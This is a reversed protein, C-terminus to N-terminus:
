KYKRKTKIETFARPRQGRSSALADMTRPLEMKFIRNGVKCIIATVETMINLTWLPSSEKAKVKMMTNM